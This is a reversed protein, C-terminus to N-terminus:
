TARSSSRSARRCPRPPTPRWARQLRHRQLLEDGRRRLTGDATRRFPTTRSAPLDHLHERQPRHASVPDTMVNGHVTIRTENM